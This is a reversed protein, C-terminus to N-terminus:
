ITEFDGRLVLLLIKVVKSLSFFVSVDFFVLINAFINFIYNLVTHSSDSLAHANHM